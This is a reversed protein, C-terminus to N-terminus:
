LAAEALCGVDRGAGYSWRTAEDTHSLLATSPTAVWRLRRRNSASAAIAPTASRAAHLPRLAGGGRAVAVATPAVAVVARATAESGEGITVPPAVLAVVSVGVRVFAVGTTVAM